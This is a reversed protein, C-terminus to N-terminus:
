TEIENLISDVYLGVPTRDDIWVSGDSGGYAVSLQELEPRMAEIAARAAGVARAWNNPTEVPDAYGDYSEGIARAVRDLMESM